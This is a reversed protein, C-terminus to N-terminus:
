SNNNINQLIEAKQASSIEFKNNYQQVVVIEPRYHIDIKDEKLYNDKLSDKKLFDSNLINLILNSKNFELPKLMKNNFTLSNNKKIKTNKKNQINRQKCSKREKLNELNKIKEKLLSIKKLKKQIMNLKTKNHNLEAKQKQINIKKTIVVKEMKEIKEYDKSANDILVGIKTIINMNYGLIILDRYKLRIIELRESLNSKPNNQKYPVSSINSHDILSTKKNDKFCCCCCYKKICTLFISCYSENVISIQPIFNLEDLMKEIEQIKNDINKKQTILNKKDKQLEISNQFISQNLKEIEESLENEQNILESENELDCENNLQNIQNQLKSIRHDIELQSISSYNLSNKSKSPHSEYNIPSLIDENKNSNNEELINLMNLKTEKISCGLLSFYLIYLIPKNLNRIIM